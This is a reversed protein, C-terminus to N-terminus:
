KAEKIKYMDETEKKFAERKKEVEDEDIEADGVKVKESGDSENDKATLAADFLARCYPVKYADDKDTLDISDNLKCVVGEIIEENSKGDCVFDPELRKADNVLDARDKVLADIAEADLVKAEADKVAKELETIKADKAAADSVAKDEAAKVKDEADKVSAHLKGIAQEAQETVEIEIGDFMIKKM